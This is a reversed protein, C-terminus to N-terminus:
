SMKSRANKVLDKGFSTSCLWHYPTKTPAEIRSAILLGCWSHYLLGYVNSPECSTFNKYWATTYDLTLGPHHEKPQYKEKTFFESWLWGALSYFPFATLTLSKAFAKGKQVEGMNGMDHGMGLLARELPSILWEKVKFTAVTLPATEDFTPGASDALLRKFQELNQWLDGESILDQEPMEALPQLYLTEPTIVAMRQAGSVYPVATWAGHTKGAMYQKRSREAWLRRTM